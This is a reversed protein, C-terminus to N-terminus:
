LIYKRAYKFSKSILYNHDDDTTKKKLEAKKGAKRNNSPFRSLDNLVETLEKRKIEISM